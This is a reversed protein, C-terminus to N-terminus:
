REKEKNGNIIVGDYYQNINRVVDNIFNVVWEYRNENKTKKLKNVWDKM